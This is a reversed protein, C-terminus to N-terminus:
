PEGYHGMFELELKLETGNELGETDSRFPVTFPESRAVRRNGELKVSNLFTAPTDDVDVGRVLLQHRDKDGATVKVILRRRLIFEPIPIDLHAMIRSMLDDTRAFVRLDSESIDDLPTSQLNCIALKGKRSKGVTEPIGSAPPITCSSGLVLCLDAKKANQRARKLPVEFLQEGFNIITDLLIGGCLACTRGTRHDHVTKEYTAVARFDRMYEQGCDKCYERNSNGHVESIKDPLIGSKRHLGDCNQSVIYKLLGRNQLEVLAMHTPTPVAQLTSVAKSTGQRKQARLTWVGEPGRFDPIGATTSIGAGTYVIFHKSEGILEALIKAKADVLSPADFREPEAIKPATNAM